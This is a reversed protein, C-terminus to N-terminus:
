VWGQRHVVCHWTKMCTKSKSISSTYWKRGRDESLKLTPYYEQPMGYENFNTYKYYTCQGLHASLLLLLVLCELFLRMKGFYCLRTGSATVPKHKVSFIIYRM